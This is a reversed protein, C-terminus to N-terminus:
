PLLTVGAQLDFITPPVVAFRQNSPFIVWVDFVYQRIDLFQTDAPQLFINALGGFPDIILVQSSFASTKQFVNRLDDVQNKVTMVVTAGTLNVPKNREDVVSLQLTKSTGRIVRVSNRPLLITQDM